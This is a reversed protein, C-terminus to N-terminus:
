VITISRGESSHIARIHSLTSGCHDGARQKVSFLAPIDHGCDAM